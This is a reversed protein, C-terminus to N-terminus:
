TDTSMSLQNEHDTRCPRSTRGVAAAVREHRLDDARIKYPAGPVVQVAPLIGEKILRRVRHHTVGLTTAAESM